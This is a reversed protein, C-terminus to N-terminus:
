IRPDLFPLKLILGHKRFIGVIEDLMFENMWKIRRFEVDIYSEHEEIYGYLGIDAIILDVDVNQKIWKAIKVYINETGSIHPIVCHPTGIREEIDCYTNAVTSISITNCKSPQIIYNLCEVMEFSDIFGTTFLCGCRIGPNSEVYKDIVSLLSKSAPQERGYIRPIYWRYVGVLKWASSVKASKEYEYYVGPKVKHASKVCNETNTFQMGSKMLPYIGMADRSIFLRTSLGYINHDILIIAFEGDLLSLTYEFGYRKYLEVITQEVTLDVSLGLDNHIHGLRYIEGTFFVAIDAHVDFTPSDTNLSINLTNASDTNLSLTFPYNVPSM